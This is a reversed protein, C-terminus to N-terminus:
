QFEFIQRFVGPAIISLPNITLKPNAVAGTLKFTIGLLGRDRGNGLLIGIVPLEAFLRNLGYAPMFTGTMDMQGSADRVTGQFTAGIQEGRVIGNDVQLAGNNYVLRAFARQFKASSVDIDRKVASNLSRGDASAPTSVISQLRSENDLRFDRIDLSGSWVSGDSSSLKLNLLGGRMKDYIDLMRTLTGADSSTVSIADRGGQDSLQAVVAQGSDTVGSLELASIKSKGASYLLSVNTLAEDNFGVIRDVKGDLRIAASTGSGGAGGGTKLKALVPRADISKGSISVQYVGKSRKIAASFNDSPSLQVSSFSATELGAKGVVMQGDAGFGDGSLKFDDVLTREGDQSLQFQAKSAIGKGKTWGIGPVTMVAGGLDVSVAQHADDTRTLEVDITGDVVDELGPIFRNRDANNLTLTVVRSRVTSSTAGIPETLTVTMPVGGITGKGDLRASQNDVDLIGDLDSVKRGDFEKAVAVGDLQMQAKWEPPPPKQDAILGIRVSATAKVDGTFDTAVFGTRELAAIPKVSALEAVADASGSVAIDIDAMLPRAYADALVFRANDVKVKRGSAFYSMGTKINVDLRKGKMDFHGGTDRLPPIQGTVNVRADDIDFSIQLENEDLRLPRPVASLRGAPIFVAITGQSITGGFLNKHVWDRPKPAIWYPWLQKLVGSQMNAVQGAISVQPGTNGFVVRASGTLTGNPTNVAMTDVQLEKSAHLFRGFIKLGFPFAAEGTSPISAIGDSVLFDIGIGAGRPANADLRDLDILGGGFPMVMPGFALQSGAFEVTQKAFDYSLNVNATTVEQRNAEFYLAGAEGELSLKLQPSAGTGGRSAAIGVDSTLELGQLPKGAADRILLFPSLDTGDISATFARAVSGDSQTNIAIRSTKGNISLGGTLSLSADARRQMVLDDLSLSVIKGGMATTAIELGGISVSDLNGRVIFQQLRDLGVFAAELSAPVSDIRFKSFDFGPGAPLLATDIRISDAEIESVKVKGALLGLPDLRMRVADTETLIQGSDNDIISVHRAEVALHMGKSFRIVTSGVEAHFHPALASDLATRASASLTRDLGGSELAAITGVLALVVLILLVAYFRLFRRFSSRKPPCHVIMPDKIRASPLTHLPVIDKKRFSVKEGRIEGMRGDVDGKHRRRPM